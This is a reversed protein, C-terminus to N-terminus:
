EERGEDVYPAPSDLAAANDDTHAQNLHTSLSGGSSIDIGTYLVQFSLVHVAEM